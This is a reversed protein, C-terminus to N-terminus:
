APPPVRVPNRLLSVLYTASKLGLRREADRLARIATVPRAVPDIEARDLVHTAWEVARRPAGAGSVPQEFIESLEIRPDRDDGLILRRWSRHTRTNTTNM